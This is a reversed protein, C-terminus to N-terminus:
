KAARTQVSDVTRTGLLRAGLEKVAQEKLGPLVHSYVQLTFAATAHGLLEQVV